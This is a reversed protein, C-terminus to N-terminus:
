FLPEIIGQLMKLYVDGSLNERCFLLISSIKEFFQLLVNIKQIYWTKTMRFIRPKSDRWLLVNQTNVNGNLFLLSNMMLAFAGLCSFIRPSKVSKKECFEVRRDPDYLSLLETFQLKYPCFHPIKLLRHM